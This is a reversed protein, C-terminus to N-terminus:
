PTDKSPEIWDSPDCDLMQASEILTPGPLSQEAEADVRFGKQKLRARAARQVNEDGIRPEFACSPPRLAMGPACSCRDGDAACTFVGKADPPSCAAGSDCGLGVCRGASNCAAYTTCPDRDDCVSGEVEVHCAASCCDGGLVNGDDCEEGSEVVGNGCAPPQPVSACSLVLLM